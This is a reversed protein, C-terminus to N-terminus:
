SISVFSKTHITPSGKKHRAGVIALISRACSYFVSVKMLAGIVEDSTAYLVHHGGGNGTAQTLMDDGSHLM